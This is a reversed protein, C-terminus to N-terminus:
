YRVRLEVSYTRPTGLVCRLATGGTETNNLGFAAAGPQNYITTCYAEDTLNQGALAVEWRDDPSVLALRAGFLQYGDQVSDPNNDGSTTLNQSTVFSTNGRVSWMWGSSLTDEYVFSATGSWRPSNPLREGTLDQTGGFAPLGPAGVFSRYESDLYAGSLQLTLPSVPRGTIDFEVGQQRVEGNNQVRFQDGDFTRFQYESIDTRFLTANAILRNDFTSTKAGLEFNEVEEPNYIRDAETRAATTGAAADFGGSKFGTSFNTYLMVDPTPYYSLNIRYTVKSQDLSMETSENALNYVLNNREGTFWGDKIDNTYRIGATLSLDDLLDYTGQAYAAYSESQQGFNTQSANQMNGANCAAVVPASAVNRLFVNCYEPYLNNTLDISYDEKYYYAGAVYDFKGDLLDEPSILQLEHSQSISSFTSDRSLLLLPVSFPADLQRNNWDRYGSILKVDYGNGLNWLLNSSLGYQHDSLNGESAQYVHYDYTRNLYPTAGVLPGTGDPDLAAAWTAAAQPVITDSKVTVVPNGDGTLNQYDAKLIWSISPTIDWSLGGRVSFVDNQGITQGTLDNTGFGEGESGLVSARVSLNDSIPANVMFTGRYREGNGASVFGEAEFENGPNATELQVAGMSANRGFLTGQPGRLIEASVVDNLGALMSGIRPVYVGDVFVAVSPEMATNGASGVGRVQVRTNTTQASTAISLGPSIRGLDRIDAVGADELMDQNFALVSIPVDQVSETRKQATVTVVDLGLTPTDDAADGAAGEQALAASVAGAGFLLTAALARASAGVFYRSKGSTIM